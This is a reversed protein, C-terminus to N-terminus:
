ETGEGEEELADIRRKNSEARADLGSQRSINLSTVAAEIATVKARVEVVATGLWVFYALLMTFIIGFAGLVVKPFFGEWGTNM